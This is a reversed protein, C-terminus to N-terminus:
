DFKLQGKSENFLYSAAQHALRRSKEVRPPNPKLDPSFSFSREPTLHPSSSAPTSKPSASPPRPGECADRGVQLRHARLFFSVAPSHVRLGPSLPAHQAPTLTSHPTPPLCQTRGPSGSQRGWAKPRRPQRSPNASSDAGSRLGAPHLGPSGM